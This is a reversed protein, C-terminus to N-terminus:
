LMKKHRWTCVLTMGETATAAMQSENFLLRVIFRQEEIRQPLIASVLGVHYDGDPSRFRVAGGVRVTL